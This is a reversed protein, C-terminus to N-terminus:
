AHPDLIAAIRACTQAFAGGVPTSADLWDVDRALLAAYGPAYDREGPNWEDGAWAKETKDIRTAADAQQWAWASRPPFFVVGHQAALAMRILGDLGSRLQAADQAIMAALAGPSVVKAVDRDTELMLAHVGQVGSLQLCAWDIYFPILDAYNAARGIRAHFLCWRGDDCRFVETINGTLRMGQWAIDVAHTQRRARDGLMRRAQELVPQARARARAYASAGVAGAAIRGSHTLWVPATPALEGQGGALADFLLRSELRERRDARAQLPERDLRDDEELAELGVGAADRLQAKAPDRWFRKLWDIGLTRSDPEAAPSAAGDAFAPAQARKPQAEAYAGSYSFLAVDQGDYYPAAHPQLAHEIRWPRSAADALAHREDLFQLLEALPAAPNRLKGTDVDHGIFSVHLCKRAALLAELFLYRDEHRTDRDGRRPKRLMMNLGEDGGPRPFEGENMGILCVVKFPISRQPVMGCFAVGGPLFLQHQPIAALAVRLAEHVVSWPLAQQASADGQARLQALLERLAKSAAAEAADEDDVEVLEDIRKDLWDSWGTLTRTAGFGTACRQLVGVLRHLCGLALAQESGAMVQPLVGDLLNGDTDDGVILGAFLRDFGFQWSNVAVAAAGSQEKAHADLGWAVGARRLTSELSARDAPRLGARRAIPPVDLFDLVESLGFRSQALELLRAFARLLPHAAALGVDALHWPIHARDTDYHAPQGFVAPLYAAYAGIDPAMVLIDQPQLQGDEALLRLLADRLVELERLRTACVHVRLSADSRLAPMTGVPDPKGEHLSAQVSGLLTNGAMPPATEADSAYDIQRQELALLFDQAMRGLSVLLPHGIDFYWDDPVEGKRLMQRRSQLDSWYERCPDPFYVHVARRASVAILADLTDPPLHSIGFVHLPESTGDGDARLAELLQQKRLARHASGIRRRLRRWLAAQWDGSDADSEWEAICDARYLLYQAFVGSLREALQFRRREADAGALSNRVAADELAALEAYIHWRLNQRRWADAQVPTEGLASHAAQELWQWPQLMRYNAAIGQAHAFRRLLWRGLGPHAVVIAQAQLPNLPLRDQLTRQLRDALVELRCDRHVFFGNM